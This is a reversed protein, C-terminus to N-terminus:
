RMTSDRLINKTYGKEDDITKCYGKVGGSNATRQEIANLNLLLNLQALRVSKEKLEDEFPFPNKIEARAANMQETLNLLNNEADKRRQSIQALVNDIRIINGRPDTGLSVRQTMKGKLM